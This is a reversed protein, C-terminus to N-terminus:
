FFCNYFLLSSGERAGAGYGIWGGTGSAKGTRYKGHRTDMQGGWQCGLGLSWREGVRVEELFSSTARSVPGSGQDGAVGWELGEGAALWEVSLIMHTTRAQGLKKFCELPKGSSPPLYFQHSPQCPASEGEGPGWQQQTARTGGRCLEASEERQESHEM